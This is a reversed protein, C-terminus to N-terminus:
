VREYFIEAICGAGIDGCLVKDGEFSRVKVHKELNADLAKLSIVNVVGKERSVFITNDSINRVRFGVFYVIPYDEHQCTWSTVNRYHKADNLGHVTRLDFTGSGSQEDQVIVQSSFFSPGGKRQQAVLGDVDERSYRSMGRLKQVHDVFSLLDVVGAHCLPIKEGAFAASPVAVGIWAFALLRMWRVFM